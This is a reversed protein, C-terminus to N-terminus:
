SRLGFSEPNNDLRVDREFPVSIACDKVSRTFFFFSVLVLSRPSSRRRLGAPRSAQNKRGSNPERPIELVLSKNEEVSHGSALVSDM